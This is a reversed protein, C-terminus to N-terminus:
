KCEITSEATEVDGDDTPAPAPEDDSEEPADDPVVVEPSSACRIEVGVPRPTVAKGLAVASKSERQEFLCLVKDSAQACLEPTMDLPADRESCGGDRAFRAAGAAVLRDMESRPVRYIGIWDDIFHGSLALVHRGKPSDM